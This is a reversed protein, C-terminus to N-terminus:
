SNRLDKNNKKITKEDEISPHRSRAKTVNWGTSSQEYHVNKKLKLPTSKEIAPLLYAAERDCMSTVM